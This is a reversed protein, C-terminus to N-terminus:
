RNMLVNPWAKMIAKVLKVACRGCLVLPKRRGPFPVHKVDLGTGCDKCISKYKGLVPM